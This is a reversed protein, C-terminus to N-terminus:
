DTTCIKEFNEKEYQRDWSRNTAAIIRVNVKHTKQAGLAAILGDQLVRLLKAQTPLPLEGLEDLFLTGGDALDFKGKQDSVAGTFAGKKHGFLM